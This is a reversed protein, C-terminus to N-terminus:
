LKLVKNTIVVDNTIIQVYYAGPNLHTLNIEFIGGINTNTGSYVTKGAIDTIVIKSNSSIERLDIKLIDLFPNPYVLLPSFGEINKSIVGQCPIDTYIKINNNGKELPLSIFPLKTNYQKGNLEITYTSSGALTLDIFNTNRNISIYTKLEKPETIILEYCQVYDKLGEVTICLSYTGPKLNTIKLSDTFSYPKDLGQGKIIATYNLKNEVKIEIKGNDSSVCTSSFTRIMFNTIPLENIRFSKLEEVSQYNANGEQVAKVIVTGSGTLSITNGSITAPGSVISFTVALGSSATATIEFPKSGFNKDAIEKFNLTQSAQLVKFTQEANVGEFNTNGAQSAKVVVTGAGTLTIINGSITAPGSIISFTIPLGSSATASITFPIAGFTKDIIENFILTQKAAIAGSSSISFTNNSLGVIEDQSGTESIRIKCENTFDSVNFTGSQKLKQGTKPIASGPVTWQYSGLKSDVAVSITKWNKGNDTTYEIKVSDSVNLTSWTILYKTGAVLVEGAQPKTVLIKSINSRTAHGDYSGGKYKSPTITNVIKEFNVSISDSILSNDASVVKIDFLGNMEQTNIFLYTGADAQYNNIIKTWNLSSKQRLYINLKSVGSYTWSIPIISNADGKFKTESILNVYGDIIQFVESVSNVTSDSSSSIKILGSVTPTAPIEWDYKKANAAYNKNIITWSKGKNVSFYIDIDEINESNWTILTKTLGNLKLGSAPNLIQIRAKLNSVQSFGDYSGGKYKSTSINAPKISLLTKSSDQVSSDTSSIKFELSDTILTSPPIWIYNLLLASVSNTVSKWPKGKNERYKISLFEVGNNVWSIPIPQDKVFSNDGSHNIAISKLPIKFPIINLAKLTPNEVSSIRILGTNTLNTPVRWEFKKANAAYSENINLWSLGNDMSYEIKIYEINNSDWKLTQISSAAFTEDGLPFLLNLKPSTNSVGSHGDFSGGLFKKNSSVPNSVLSRNLSSSIASSDASEIKLSITSGNLDPVIWTFAEALSPYGKRILTYDTGGNISYYINIKEVTQSKWGFKFANGKVISTTSDADLKLSPESIIFNGPNVSAININDIDSIRIKGKKTPKAPVLWAYKSASSPYSNILTSWSIGGDLSFEIKINDVNSSEWTINFYDGGSIVQENTPAKLLLADQAFAFQTLLGTILFLILNKL